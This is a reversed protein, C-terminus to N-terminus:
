ETVPKQKDVLGVSVPVEGGRYNGKRRGGLWDPCSCWIGYQLGASQLLYRIGNKASLLEGWRLFAGPERGLWSICKQLKIVDAGGTCTGIQIGAPSQILLSLLARAHSTSKTRDLLAAVEPPAETLPQFKNVLPISPM